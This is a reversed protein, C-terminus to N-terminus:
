DEPERDCQESCDENAFELEITAHVKGEKMIQERASSKVKELKADEHVVIHCSLVHHEGDLSWAHIDHVDLVGDVQLLRQKLEDLDFGEPIRQLFLVGTKAINRVVNWLILLAIGIALVPDIWTWDFAIILISGILVAIWGLVDELLHWTLMRENQTGGKSLKWAAFGNVAAGFIALGLMALGHPKQPESFRQAAHIVIYISGAFLVAGNILASLASVRQYGYSFKRDPGKQAYKELILAVGLALTDGLDHIADAIIAVSGILFGGIIEIVTFCLNLFFAARIRKTSDYSHHHDSM